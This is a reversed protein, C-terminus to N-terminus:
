KKKFKDAIICIAIVIIMAPLTYGVPTYVSMLLRYIVFGIAWIALNSWSVAKAVAEKKLIYYDTIVISIMPAFVSGIFYLFSEFNQVDLAVALIIGVAAVAVGIYKENIKDSFSKASVGASYADLFTTTVTSLILILVAAIGLGAKLMISAIDGSGGYIAAGLGIIYMWSSGFFYVVTSTFTAAKPKAAEKTYDSILPLWSLPMAVSLEVANGFRMVDSVSETGTVSFVTRSLIITLVFLAAIVFYNLKIIKKVGIIVWLIILGGIAISWIWEKNVAWMSGSIVTTAIAGTSIMIATWGVLQTINLASFLLGGKDGFSLKVTDMASRGTYGGILGALYFVFCGIVHGLLIAAIGKSFGLPAFFTGTLIEAISISAGFWILGNAFVSTKGNEISKM